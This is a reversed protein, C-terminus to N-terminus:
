QFNLTGMHSRCFFRCYRGGVSKKLAKGNYYSQMHTYGEWTGELSSAIYEDECSALSLSMIALLALSCYQYFKKM